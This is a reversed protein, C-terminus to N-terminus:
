PFVLIAVFVPIVAHRSSMGYACRPRPHLQTVMTRAVGDTRSAKAYGQTVPIM